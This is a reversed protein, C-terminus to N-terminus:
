IKTPLPPPASGGFDGRFVGSRMIIRTTNCYVTREFYVFSSADDERARISVRFLSKSTFVRKVSVKKVYSTAEEESVHEASIGGRRRISQQVHSAPGGSVPAAQFFEDTEGHQSDSGQEQEQPVLFFGFSQFVCVTFHVSYM